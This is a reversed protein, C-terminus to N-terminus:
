SLRWVVMRAGRDGEKKGFWGYGGSISQLVGTLGFVAFCILLNERAMMFQHLLSWLLMEPESSLCQRARVWVRRSMSLTLQVGPRVRSPFTRRWCVAGLQHALLGNGQPVDYRHLQNPIRDSLEELLSSEVVFAKLPTSSTDNCLHSLHNLYENEHCNTLRDHMEIIL